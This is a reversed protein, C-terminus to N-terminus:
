EMALKGNEVCVTDYDCMTLIDILDLIQFNEDEAV